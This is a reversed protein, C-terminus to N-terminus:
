LGIEQLAERDTLGGEVTMIALRELTAEDYIELWQQPFAEISSDQQSETGIVQEIQDNSQLTGNEGSPERVSGRAMGAKTWARIDLGAQYAEGPDKGLPVPWRLAQPYQKAWWQWSATAGAQDHDLALLIVEANVIMDHTEHDPKAQASGLAVVATLDGAEQWLLLGDLESEVIVATKTESAWTMPRTDSGPVLIYRSGEDPESRRIRLRVIQGDHFSPLVLGMPVWLKKPKGTKDSIVTPLGWTESTRYFDHPNWGLGGQRITLDTLGRGHLWTRIGVGQNGWLHGQSHSLFAEAKERWLDGPPKSGKPVWIPRATAQGRPGLRKGSYKPYSELKLCAERYDM